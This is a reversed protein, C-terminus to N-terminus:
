LIDNIVIDISRGILSLLGLNLPALMKQMILEFLCVAITNQKCVVAQEYPLFTVNKPKAQTLAAELINDDNKAWKHVLFHEKIRDDWCHCQLQRCTPTCLKANAIRLRLM